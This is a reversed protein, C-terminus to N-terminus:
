FMSWSPPSKRRNGISIPWRAYQPASNPPWPPRQTGWAGANGEYSPERAWSPPQWRTRILSRNTKPLSSWSRRKSQEQWATASVVQEAGVIPLIVRASLPRNSDRLARCLDFCRPARCSHSRCHDSPDPPRVRARSRHVAPDLDRGAARGRPRVGGTGPRDPHPARGAARGPRRQRAPLPDELAEVVREVGGLPGEAGRARVHDFVQRHALDLHPPGSWLQILM